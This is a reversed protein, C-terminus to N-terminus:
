LISTVFKVSYLDCMVEDESIADKMVFYNTGVEVLRGAKDFSQNGIIFEARILRGIISALYGPIYSRDMVPPPGQQTLGDDMVVSYDSQQTSGSSETMNRMQMQTQASNSAGAVGSTKGTSRGALETNTPMRAVGHDLVKNGIWNISPQNTM